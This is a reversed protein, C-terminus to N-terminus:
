GASITCDCGQHYPPHSLDITTTLPVDAGEPQFDKGAELFPVEKSRVTGDLNTCYPCSDGIKRSVISTVGAAYFAVQAAANGLQVAERASLRQDRPKGQGGDVWEDVRASVLVDPADVDRSLKDLQQRSSKAYRNTFALLYADAFGARDDPGFAATNEVERLAADAVADIYSAFTPMLTRRAFGAIPDAYYTLLARRFGGPDGPLHDAIFQRIKRVEGRLFRGFADAFVPSFQNRLRVRSDIARSEPPLIKREEHVTKAPMAAGSEAALLMAREPVSLSGAQDLPIMNVQIFAQDGGAIANRGEMARIENSTLSGTQVGQMYFAGRKETDGKLLGELVFEVFIGAQRDAETLVQSNIAHQWRVTWPRITDTAWEINQHEINSFTADAMERLKHPPMNLWRAIESVTFRRSQFLQSDEPSLQMQEWTMGEELLLADHKGGDLGPALSSEINARATESLAQPHTFVGTPTAGEAYWRGAYEEAALGIGLSQRAMAVVGFGRTGDWGLGPIHLVNEPQLTDLRHDVTTQYVTRGRRRVRQTNQAVLIGLEVVRDTATQRVLQSYGNGDTLLHSQLTERWIMANSKIDPDDPAPNDHLLPWLPHQRVENKDRGDSQYVKLPLSGITESIMRVGAWFASLGLADTTSVGRGTWTERSRGLWNLLNADSLPIGPNELTQGRTEVVHQRRESYFGM